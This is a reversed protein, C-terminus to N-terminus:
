KYWRILKMQQKLSRPTISVTNSELYYTNGNLTYTDFFDFVHNDRSNVVNGNKIPATVTLNVTEEICRDMWELESFYMKATNFDKVPADKQNLLTGGNVGSVGWSGGVTLASQIDTYENGEDGPRSRYATSATNYTHEAGSSGSHDESEEVVVGDETVVVHRIGGSLYSYTTVRTKRYGPITVGSSDTSSALETVETISRILYDNGTNIYSYTTTTTSGDSNLRRTYNIRNDTKGDHRQVNDYGVSLGDSEPTTSFSWTPPEFIYRQYQAVVGNQTTTPKYWSTRILQRDITPYNFSYNSLDINGTEHGRQLFYLTNSGTRIFVNIRKRPIESTWGFLSSLLSQYNTETNAYDQDPIFDDSLWGFNLGLADAIKNAQVEAGYAYLTEGSSRHRYSQRSVGNLQYKITTYLLKDASYMTRNVTHLIGEQHTEEAEFSYPFDLIQGIVADKPYIPNVGTLYFTDSLTACALTMSISQLGSGNSLNHPIQRKMDSNVDVINAILRKTDCAFSTPFALIRKTDADLYVASGLERLTDASISVPISVVRKTDALLSALNQKLRKTDALLNVLNSKIRKTDALLDVHRGYEVVRLTDANIAIASCKNRKTDASISITNQRNRHTDAILSVANQRNRCTDATLDVRASVLNRFTDASISVTNQRIRRTDALLNETTMVLRNTDAAFSVAIPEIYTIYSNPLVSIGEHKQYTIYSNPLVSIGEHKQYTIYSDVSTQISM